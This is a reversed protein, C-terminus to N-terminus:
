MDTRRSSGRPRLSSELKFMAATKTQWHTDGFKTGRALRHRLAKLDAQSEMGNVHRTWQVPKLIQVEHLLGAPSRRATPKLSSWDWDQGRQVM